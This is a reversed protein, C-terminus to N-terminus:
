EIVHACVLYGGANDPSITASAFHAPLEIEEGSQRSICDNGCKRWQGDSLLDFYAELTM